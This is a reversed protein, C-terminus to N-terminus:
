KRGPIPLIEAHGATPRSAAEISEMSNGLTMALGRMRPGVDVVSSAIGDLLLRHLERAHRVLDALDAGFDGAEICARAEAIAAILAQSVGSLDELADM